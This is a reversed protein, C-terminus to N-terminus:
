TCHHSNDNSKIIALRAEVTSLPGLRGSCTINTKVPVDSQSLLVQLHRAQIQMVRFTVAEKSNVSYAGRQRVRTNVVLLDAGCFRKLSNM